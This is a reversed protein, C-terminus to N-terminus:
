KQRREQWDWYDVTRDLVWGPFLPAVLVLVVAALIILAAM